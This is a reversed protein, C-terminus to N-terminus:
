GGAAAEFLVVFPLTAGNLAIVGDSYQVTCPESQSMAAAIQAALGDLDTGAPLEYMSGPATSTLGTAAPLYLFAQEKFAGGNPTVGGEGWLVVSAAARSSLLLTGTRPKVITASFPANGSPTLAEADIPESLMWNTPDADIKLFRYTGPM